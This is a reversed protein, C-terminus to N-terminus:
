QVNITGTMNPHVTCKYPFSGRTSFTRTFTGNPEVNSAWVNTDSTTTHVISDRNSWTVVAGPAVNVNSPAFSSAGYIDSVPINITIANQGGGGGGGPQTPSSGKKCSASGLIVICTVALGLIRSRM